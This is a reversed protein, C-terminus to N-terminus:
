PIYDTGRKIALTLNYGTAQLLILAEADTTVVKLNKLIQVRRAILKKTLNHPDLNIMEGEVIWKSQLAFVTTLTKLLMNVVVDHDSKLFIGSEPTANSVRIVFDHPSLIPPPCERHLLISLEPVQYAVRFWSYTPQLEAGDVVGLLGPTGEGVYVIRGEQSTSKQFHTCLAQAQQTLVTKDVAQIAEELKRFWGEFSDGAETLLNMFVQLTAYQSTGAKMRTSGRPCEAGTKNCLNVEAARSLPSDPNNHLAITLAGSKRAAELYALAYPTRGSASLAIVVATQDFAHKAADSEALHESDEAGEIAASFAAAGGAIDFGVYFSSNERMKFATIAALRGSTGAGIIYLRRKEVPIQKWHGFTKEVAALISAKNAKVVQTAQVMGEFLAACQDSLSFKEIKAGAPDRQETAVLSLDVLPATSM